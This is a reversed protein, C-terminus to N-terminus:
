PITFTLLFHLLVPKRDALYNFSICGYWIIFIIIEILYNSLSINVRKGMLWLKTFAQRNISWFCISSNELMRTIQIHYSHSDASEHKKEKWSKSAQNLALLISPLVCSTSLNCATLIIYMGMPGSLCVNDAYFQSYKRIWWSRLFNNSKPSKSKIKMTTLSM